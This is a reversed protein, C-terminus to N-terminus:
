RAVGMEKKREKKKEKKRKQAFQLNAAADLV